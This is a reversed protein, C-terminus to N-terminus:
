SLRCCGAAQGPLSSAPGACAACGCKSLVSVCCAWWGCAPGAAADDQISFGSCHGASGAAAQRGTVAPSAQQPTTLCSKWKLEVDPGSCARWSHTPGALGANGVCAAHGRVAQLEM